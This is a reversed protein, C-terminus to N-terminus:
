PSPPPAAAPPLDLQRLLARELAEQGAGTELRLHPLAPWSRPGGAPGPQRRLGGAAPGHGRRPGPRGAIAAAPGAATRGASGSASPCFEGGPGAAPRRPCGAASWGGSGGGCVGGPFLGGDLDGELAWYTMGAAARRELVPRGATLHVYGLM